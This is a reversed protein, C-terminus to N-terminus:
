TGDLDKETVALDFIGNSAETDIDLVCKGEGFIRFNSRDAGRQQRPASV